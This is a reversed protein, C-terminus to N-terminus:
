QSLMRAANLRTLTTNYKLAEAVLAFNEDSINNAKLFSYYSTFSKFFACCSINLVTIIKNAKLAESIKM